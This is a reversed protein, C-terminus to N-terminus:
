SILPLTSASHKAFPCRRQRQHQLALLLLMLPQLRVIQQPQLQHLVIKLGKYNNSDKDNGVGLQGKGFLRTQWSAPDESMACKATCTNATLVNDKHMNIM